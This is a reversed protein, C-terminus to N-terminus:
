NRVSFNTQLSSEFMRTSLSTKRATLTVTVYASPPTGVPLFSATSISNAVVSTEGTTLNERILQIRTGSGTQRYRITDGWTITQGDISQPLRFCLSSEMASVGAPCYESEPSSWSARPLDMSIASLGKRVEQLTAIKTESDQWIDRGMSLLGMITAILLVGLTSTVMMEVM